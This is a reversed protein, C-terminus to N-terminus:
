RAAVPLCLRCDSFFSGRVASSNTESEMSLKTLEDIVSSIQEPQLILYHSKLLETLAVESQKAHLTGGVDVVRKKLLKEATEAHCHGCHTAYSQTNQASQVLTPLIMLSGSFLITFHRKV